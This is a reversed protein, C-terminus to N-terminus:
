NDISIRSTDGVTFIMRGEIPYYDFFAKGSALQFRCVRDGVNLQYEAGTDPQAPRSIPAPNQLLLNWLQACDEETVSYGDVVPGSVGVPWGQTSFYVVQDMIRIQKRAASHSSSLGSVLFEVRANAAATVFRHALMEMRVIRADEAMFWYRGLASLSILAIVIAVVFWEFRGNNYTRIM